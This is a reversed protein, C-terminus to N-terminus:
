AFVNNGKIFFYARRRIATEYKEFQTKCYIIIFNMDFVFRFFSVDFM